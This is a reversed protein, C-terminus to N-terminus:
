QHFVIPLLVYGKSPGPVPKYNVYVEGMPTLVDNESDWMEHWYPSYSGQNDTYWAYREISDGADANLRDRYLYDLV